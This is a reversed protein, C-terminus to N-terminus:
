VQLPGPLQKIQGNDSRKMGLHALTEEFTVEVNWRLVFWNIIQEPALKVDTSFFAEAEDTDPDTVLVWRILLPKEGSSYWVHVGSLLRVKEKEGGYWDVEIDSWAQSLDAALEKLATVRKGKERRRGLQGKM